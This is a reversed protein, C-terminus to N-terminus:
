AVKVLTLPWGTEDFHQVMDALEMEDREDRMTRLFENHAALANQLAASRTAGRGLVTANCLGDNDREGSDYTVLWM